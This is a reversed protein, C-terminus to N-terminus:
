KIDAFTANAENTLMDLELKLIRKLREEAAEFSKELKITCDINPFASHIVPVQLIRININEDSFKDEIQFKIYPANLEQEGTQPLTEITEPYILFLDKSKRRIAYSVLQYLDSQSVGHKKDYDKNDKSTSYILKYKTDCVIPKGIYEFYIDHQLNFVKDSALQYNEFLKALYLDSKQYKLNQINLESKHKEIFGFIFDEFIYEMPLLFAYVRFDDKFTYTTSNALFLKCYDLLTFMDEFLPNIKVKECDYYSVRVDTVEELIFIIESLLQTNEFNQSASLLLKSVYKIIRNFQNDFEFSDYTCSLKHWKAKTINEKLYNNVDLRGKMFPLENNIEEYYQYLMYSLAQRTHTAFLYILIEFFDSKLSNLTVKSKPFKFKRCYSLWWLINAHIAKIKEDSYVTDKKYFIKPLLNIIHNDYKIIGVYKQSKIYKREDNIITIFRQKSALEKDFTEEESIDPYNLQNSSSNGRNKWIEDLFLELENLNGPYPQRNCYEFLNITTIQNNESM